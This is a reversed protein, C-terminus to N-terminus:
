ASIADIGQGCVRLLTRFCGSRSLGISVMEPSRVIQFGASHYRSSVPRNSINRTAFIDGRGPLMAESLLSIKYSWNTSNYTQRTPSRSRACATVRAAYGPACQTSRESRGPSNRKLKEANRGTLRVPTTLPIERTRPEERARGRLNTTQTRVLM